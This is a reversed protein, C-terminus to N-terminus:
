TNIIFIHGSVSNLFPCLPLVPLRRRFWIMGQVHGEGESDGEDHRNGGDGERAAPCKAREGAYLPQNAAGRRDDFPGPLRYPDSYIWRRYCQLGGSVTPLNKERQEKCWEIKKKVVENEPEVHQAFALNQLSYEHGCYVRTHGPLIGLKEVLASYMQDATGEFFRGCGSLFLTDGTFVAKDGDDSGEVFYCIHGTTHCPTFLCKVSLSGISFTDGHGMKQTMAGIRDDGGYVTLAPGKFAKVLKENGGAHDWHHHTTLVQTLNVKAEEVAALVSEPDVPDVVAASQTAKDIIQSFSLPIRNHGSHTLYLSTCVLYM